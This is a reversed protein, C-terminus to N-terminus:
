VEVYEITVAEMELKWDNGPDDERLFGNPRVLPYSGCNSITITVECTNNLPEFDDKIADDLNEANFNVNEIGLVLIIEGENSQDTETSEGVKM